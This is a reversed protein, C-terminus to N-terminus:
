PMKDLMESAISQFSHIQDESMKNLLARSDQLRGELMYSLALYFESMQRKQKDLKEDNVLASFIKSAQQYQELKFYANAIYFRQTADYNQLDPTMQNIFNQLKEKQNSMLATMFRLWDSQEEEIIRSQSFNPSYSDYYEVALSPYSFDESPNLWRIGFFVAISAAVALPILM